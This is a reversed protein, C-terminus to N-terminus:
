FRYTLGIIGNDSATTLPNWASITLLQFNYKLNVSLKDLIFYRIGLNLDLNLGKILTLLKAPSQDDEESDVVRFAFSLVPFSLGTEIQFKNSLPYIGEVNVGVSLLAAFSQAYDFGDVAINPENFYFIFDTSPGLYFYLEKKFLHARNLPYLFGQNLTVQTIETSANNNKIKNSYRYAFKLRYVFKDHERAWGIGYQPMNGKYKEQSIYQDKVAYNGFGYEIFVGAPFVEIKNLTDQGFLYQGISITLLLTISILKFKM